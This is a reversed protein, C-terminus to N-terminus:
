NRQNGNTLLVGTLIRKYKAADLDVFKAVFPRYKKLQFSKNSWIIDDSLNQDFYAIVCTFHDIALLTETSIVENKWATLIIPSNGHILYKIDRDDLEDALKGCEREFMYLMSDVRSKWATYNEDNMNGVWIKPNKVFNAVFFEVVNEKSLNKAVKEFFYRDRRVSFKEPNVKIHGNYKFYDYKPSTFHLKLALYITYAEVGSM